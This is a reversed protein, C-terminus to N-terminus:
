KNRFISNTKKRPSILKKLEEKSLFNKVPTRQIDGRNEGSEARAESAHSFLPSLQNSKRPSHADEVGMMKLSTLSNKLKNMHGIFLSKAAAAHSPSFNDNTTIHLGQIRERAAQICSLVESSPMGPYIMNMLQVQNTQNYLKRQVGLNERLYKRLSERSLM